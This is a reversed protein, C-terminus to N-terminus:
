LSGLVSVLFPLRWRLDRYALLVDWVGALMCGCIDFDILTCMMFLCLATLLFGVKEVGVLVGVGLRLIGGFSMM